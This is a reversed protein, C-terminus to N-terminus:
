ADHSKQVPRPAGFKALLENSKATSAHPPKPAHHMPKTHPVHKVAAEATHEFPKTFVDAHKIVSEKTHELHSAISMRTRSIVNDRPTKPKKEDHDQNEAM